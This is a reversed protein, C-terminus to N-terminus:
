GADLFHLGWLGSLSSKFHSPVSVNKNGGVSGASILSHVLSSNAGGSGGEMMKRRDRLKVNSASGRSKM